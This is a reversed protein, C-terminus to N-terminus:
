KGGAQGICYLNGETRIFIQGGSVAPSACCKEGLVNKAIVKFAPGSEIVTTTGQESTFYIRGDAWLPSASYNGGLRDRWVTEGTAAKLCRLVGRETIVYLYPKVYLMSPLSPVDQADQWAIHTATVDGKGGLRVARIAAGEPVHTPFGSATFVLGEGIVISPVVGEGRSTVTWIREGTKPDFGQVVDGAASVLQDQGDVTTVQPTIHALRSMGRKAQWRVKGTGTDLAVVFSQDWPKQWGVYKDPGRSSHDITAILLDNYLIPSASLGHQSYFKIVDRNTWVISGDMTLAAFSGDFALVYVREGDTVPTPTAYSNQSLKFGPEQRLVETNWLVKGSKRDLAILRFSAGGDDGTTVFVRDGWVIPSSWGAGPIPTKWAVNSTASWETALGTETSIGQGTPGRFRPWNEGYAAAAVTAALLLAIASKM